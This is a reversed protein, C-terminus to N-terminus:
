SGFRGKLVKELRQNPNVAFDVMAKMGIIPADDTKYLNHLAASKPSVPENSTVIATVAKINSAPFLIIYRM